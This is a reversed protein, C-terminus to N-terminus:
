GCPWNIYRNNKKREHGNKKKLINIESIKFVMTM